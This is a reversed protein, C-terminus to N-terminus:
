WALRAIIHLKWPWCVLVVLLLQESLNLIPMVRLLTLTPSWWNMASRTSIRHCLSLTGLTCRTYIYPMYCYVLHHVCMCVRMYTCWHPRPARLVMRVLTQVLNVRQLRALKIYQFLDVIGEVKMREIQAYISVYAGSRGTGNSCWIPCLWMLLVDVATWWTYVCVSTVHLLPLSCNAHVYPPQELACFHVISDIESCYM